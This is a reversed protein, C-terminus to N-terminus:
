HKITFRHLSKPAWWNASGLMSMLAPVLLARIITADFLIAFAVGFGLTKINTVGSTVFAAFVAALLLAAATIIRGSKQLGNSVSDVNSKGADHEERIRSLLFVEYDMSLGFTVVCILILMSTSVAGTTTFDGVLWKLNGQLFVYTVAGMMAALSLINLLVAKIPLIISGTFMFLLLLVVIAIWGFSLPLTKAIGEQSDTYAAAVGGILTGKPAEIKRIETILKQGDPTRPSVTHIAQIRAVDNKIIHSSVQLIGDVKSLQNEYSKLEADSVKNENVNPIIIEIPTSSQGPFSKQLEDDAIAIKSNAPMTKANEQSFVINKIPSAVVSILLLSVLVVPVPRKMVFRATRAWGGHDKHTIASKRVIYKDINKGLMALIAPLPVLAGFVATFVVAIGALGFSRLFMLPFFLLSALTALVTVGSFFVTKGATNVTNKVAQDVSNGKQLEERFRNVILLSYDIGLGLGLGTTLNLAFISVNTFLSVVWIIFLAGLIASVGVVLPMASAILGGFIFLLFIFTLPISIGEAFALDKTIKEGLQSNLVSNGDVYARISGHQGDLGTLAKGIEQNKIQDTTTSYVFILASKGDKSLFAPSYNTSWYSFTSEVNKTSRIKSNLQNVDSITQSDKLGSNPKVLIVAVPDKANFTKELYQAAKASDSNPVTYGSNQLRPIAQSGLGGLILIGLLGAIVVIKKRRVLFNGLKLFM